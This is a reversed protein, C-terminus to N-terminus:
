ATLDLGDAPEEPEPDPPRQRSYTNKRKQRNHNQEGVGPLEDPSIVSEEVEEEGAAAANKRADQSHRIQRSKDIEQARQAGPAQLISGTIPNIQSVNREGYGEDTFGGTKRQNQV